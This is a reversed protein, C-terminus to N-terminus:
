GISRSTATFATAGLRHLARDFLTLPPRYLGGGVLGGRGDAALMALGVLPSAAEDIVRRADLGVRLRAFAPHATLMLREALQEFGAPLVDALAALPEPAQALRQAGFGLLDIVASDGIAGCIATGSAATPLRPGAPPLARVSAWRGPAGALCLGFREGNGGARTVLSPLLGPGEAARLLLGCAAMWLTLFFLPTADLHIALATAGRGGLADALAATAATTRSHLDDGAGLGQAALPFLALPGEGALAQRLAPAIEADRQALRMLLDADRDGMRTDPGRVTSLPAWCHLGSGAEDGVDLLPTHQSVLAALPALCGRDQAPSLSVAGSRVMAEASAEDGAWGEHLCSMVASSMLVPPPAHADLLPPGAHLLERPGLGLAEGADVVAMLQPRVSLLREIAQLPPVTRASM